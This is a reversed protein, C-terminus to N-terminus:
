MATTTTAAADKPAAVAVRAGTSTSLQESALTSTAVSVEQSLMQNLHQQREVLAQNDAREYEVALPVVIRLIHSYVRVWSRHESPGFADGLVSKMTWFLVDGMLGYEIAKVGRHNHVDVLRTMTERFKVPNDLCTLILSIMKVLFRGQSKMGSKFMPKCIQEILGVVGMDTTMGDFLLFAGSFLTSM